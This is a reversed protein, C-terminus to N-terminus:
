WARLVARADGLWPMEVPGGAQLVVVTSANVALVARVLGDRWGTLRVKELDWGEADWEGSHGVFVVARDGLAIGVAFAVSKVGGVLSGGGRAENSRDTVRMWGTGRRANRRVSRFDAGSLIDVQRELSTRGM